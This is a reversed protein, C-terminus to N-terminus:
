CGFGGIYVGYYYCPAVSITLFSGCEESFSLEGKDTIAEVRMRKSDIKDKESTSRM